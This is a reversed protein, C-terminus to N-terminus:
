KGTGSLQVKQPSDEANDVVLVEGNRTGAGLPVFVIEITCTANPGLPATRNACTSAPLVMFDGKMEVNSVSLMETGTNKVIVTQAASTVGIPQEGFALSAPSIAATPRGATGTGRLGVTIQVGSPAESITLTGTHNAMASPKFAVHVECDAGSALTEPPKPCDDTEIFDGTIAIGSIEQASTGNNFVTVTQPESSKGMLVRGFDLSYPALILPSRFNQSFAALWFIGAIALGARVGKRAM